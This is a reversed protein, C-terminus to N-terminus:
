LSRRLIEQWVCHALRVMTNAHNYQIFAAPQKLLALHLSGDVTAKDEPSLTSSLSQTWLMSLSPTKVLVKNAKKRAEVGERLFAQRLGQLEQLTLLDLAPLLSETTTM